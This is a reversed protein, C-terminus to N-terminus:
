DSMERKLYQNWRHKQVDDIQENMLRRLLSTKGVENEGVIMVRCNYRITTGSKAAKMFEDRKSCVNTKNDSANRDVFDDFLYETEQLLVRLRVFIPFNCMKNNTEDCYNADVFRKLSFLSNSWSKAGIRLLAERLSRFFYDRLVYMLWGDM